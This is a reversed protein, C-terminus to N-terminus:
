PIVARTPSRQHRLARPQPTPALAFPIQLRPLRPPNLERTTQHRHSQARGKRQPEARLRAPPLTLSEPESQPSAPRRNWRAGTAGLVPVSSAAAATGASIATLWFGSSCKCLACRPPRTRPSQGPADDAIGRKLREFAIRAQSIRRRRCSLNRLTWSSARKSSAAEDYQASRPEKARAPCEAVLSRFRIALLRGPQVLRATRFCSPSQPPAPPPRM